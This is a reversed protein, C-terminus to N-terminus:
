RTARAVVKELLRILTVRESEDLDAFRDADMQNQLKFADKVVTRGKDTLRISVLRRDTDSDRTRSILGARELTRLVTSTAQRTVGDIRAIDRAELPERLWIIFLTRFGPWTIGHEALHRQESGGVHVASLRTVAFGLRMASEDMDPVRARTLEVVSEGYGSGSPEAPDVKDM